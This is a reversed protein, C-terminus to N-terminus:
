GGSGSLRERAVRIADRARDMVAMPPGLLLNATASELGAHPHTPATGEAALVLARMGALEAAPVKHRLYSFEYRQEYVAHTIVVARMIMFLPLFDPHDLDMGDLRELLEKAEHEERLRDDVISGGEDLRRRAVPHVVEEEAVEHVSLLHVLERWAAKREEGATALVEMMLDRIRMHQGVLLEVVDPPPMTGYPVATSTM